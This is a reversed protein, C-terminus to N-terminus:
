NQRDAMIKARIDAISEKVQLVDKMITKIERFYKRDHMEQIMAMDIEFQEGDLNTLRM